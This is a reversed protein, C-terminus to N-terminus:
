RPALAPRESDITRERDRAVDRVREDRCMRDADDDRGGHAVVHHQDGRRGPTSCTMTSSKPTAAASRVSGAARM